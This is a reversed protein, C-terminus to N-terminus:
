FHYKWVLTGIRNKYTYLNINANSKTYEYSLQLASKATLKRQMQTQWRKKIDKRRYGMVPDLKSYRHSERVFGATADFRRSLHYKLYLALISLNKAVDYRKNSTADYKAASASLVTKLRGKQWSFSTGAEYKDYDRDPTFRTFNKTIQTYCNLYSSRNIRIGWAPKFFLEDSIKEGGLRTTDAGVAASLFQRNFKRDVASTIQLFNLTNGKASHFLENYSYLTTTWGFQANLYRHQLLLNALLYRSKAKHTNNKLLYPGYRTYPNDTTLNVNDNYGIGTEFAIHWFHQKQHSRITDELMAITCHKTKYLSSQKLEHLKKRAEDYLGLKVLTRTYYLKALLNDPEFILVRDFLALAEEYRKANYLTIGQQMLSPNTQPSHVTDTEKKGPEKASKKTHLYVLYADKYRKHINRLVKKAEQKTMYPGNLLTYFPKEFVLMVPLDSALYAKKAYSENLYSALRIYYASKSEGSEQPTAQLSLSFLFLMLISKFVSMHDIVKM